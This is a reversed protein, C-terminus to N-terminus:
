FIRRLQAKLSGPVALGIGDTWSKARRVWGRLRQSRANGRALRALLAAELDGTSPLHVGDKLGYYDGRRLAELIAGPELRDVHVCTFMGRYQRRWHLDQGYFATMTRRRAKLRTLLAFTSPRAGYRGDYKTNWTEIGDPLPDFGEIVAFAEDKPHAIVAIGGSRQILRIVEPADTSEVPTTTGYGLIHMRNACGYELGAIFQFRADSRAACEQRYADLRPADFWDAHDTVCAFRCGDRIFTDRLEELTFDGDSYTSHIHLVGKLM